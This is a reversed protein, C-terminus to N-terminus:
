KHEDQEIALISVRPLDWAVSLDRIPCIEAERYSMKFQKTVVPTMFM